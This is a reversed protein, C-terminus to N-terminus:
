QQNPTREHTRTIEMKVGQFSSRGENAIISVCLEFLFGAVQVANKHM